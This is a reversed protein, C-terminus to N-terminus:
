EHWIRRNDHRYRRILELGSAACLRLEIAGSTATNMVEAGVSQWRQVVDPKPFGWHNGYASSVIALTPRLAQVFPPTSSTRSGHHPVIVAAVGPLTQMAVLEREATAEIDGSLLIRHEGAQLLLVCSSDNGRAAVQLPPYLIRFEIGDYSWNQGARCPLVSLGALPEGALIRRVPITELIAGVGGAHDLDAHSVVLRDLERVGRHALYPLLVSVAASSGSRYAPGTDYLLTRHRTRVVVALGQGVDLIEVLACGFAPRGPQYLLVAVLGIWAVPRGPWGPPLIAWLAPVAIYLCAAGALAPVAFSAWRLQDFLALGKELLAISHAALLLAQDGLPQVPGDFLFGLLSLPVTVFGFLPVALLNVPLAAFSIQDFLVAVLPFLGCLLMLQLTAPGAGRRGVWVLLAVAAFSLIFGPTMTALPDSVAIALAAACLIAPLNPRRGALLAFAALLVMLGARRAPVAFGAIAAYTLAVLASCVIAGRLHNRQRARGSLLGAILLTLAYAGGAALGIHLGSIAMLHSTGTAAYRQWQEASLLHRTGVVLAILVAAQERDEVLASVRRVFRHRLQGIPGALPPRLLHNRHGGVVYGTAAISERFLWGEYDFTGPNRTGRPRRLRVELRWRDGHQLTVPPEFWSLRFRSPLRADDVPHALFSVTARDTSPFDAVVIEVVLSDGEFAAPLRASILEHAAIFFWALGACFCILLWWRGAFLLLLAVVFAVSLYGSANAFSSLQLAYMGALLSLCARTM